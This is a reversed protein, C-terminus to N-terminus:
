DSGSLQMVCFVASMIAIFINVQGVTTEDCQHCVSSALEPTMIYGTHVFHRFISAPSKSNVLLSHTSFFDLVLPM